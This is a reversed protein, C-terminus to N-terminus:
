IMTYVRIGHVLCRARLATVTRESLDQFILLGGLRQDGLVRDLSAADTAPPVAVLAVENEEAVVALAASLAPGALLGLRSVGEHAARRLLRSAMRSFVEVYRGAEAMHQRLLDELRTLGLDTLRYHLDRHGYPELRLIGEDALKHLYQHVRSASLNLEEAARKQTVDPHQRVLSLLQM